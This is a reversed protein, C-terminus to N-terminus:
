SHQTNFTSLLPALRTYMLATSAKFAHFDKPAWRAEIRGPDSVKMPGKADLVEVPSILTKPAKKSPSRPITASPSDQELMPISKLIATFEKTPPVSNGVTEFDQSIPLSTTSPPDNPSLCIAPMDTMPSDGSAVTLMEVDPKSNAINQLPSFEIEETFDDQLDDSNINHLYEDMEVVTMDFYGPFSMKLAAEIGGIKAM